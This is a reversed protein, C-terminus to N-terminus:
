KPVVYGCAGLDRGLHDSMRANSAGFMVDFRERLGAPFTLDLEAVKSLQTAQRAAQLIPVRLLDDALRDHPVALGLENHFHTRM